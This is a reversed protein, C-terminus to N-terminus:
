LSRSRVNNINYSNLDGIIKLIMDRSSGTWTVELAWPTGQNKTVNLSRILVVVM